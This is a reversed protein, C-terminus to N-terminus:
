ESEFVIDKKGLRILLYIRWIEVSHRRAGAALQAVQENPQQPPARALAHGKLGEEVVGEQLARAVRGTLKFM